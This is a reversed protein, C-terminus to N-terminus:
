VDSEDGCTTGSYRLVLFTSVNEEELNGYKRYLAALEEAVDRYFDDPLGDLCNGFVGRSIASHLLEEPSAYSFVRTLTRQEVVHIGHQEFREIWQKVTRFRRWLDIVPKVIGRELEAEYAPAVRCVCDLLKNGARTAAGADSRHPEGHSPLAAAIYGGERLRARLTDVVSPSLWQLGYNCAILDYPGAAAALTNADDRVFRIRDAPTAKSSAADLMNKSADVAVIASNPYERALAFTLIGTGCCLDLIDAIGAPVRRRVSRVTEEALYRYLPSNMAEYRNALSDYDVTRMM